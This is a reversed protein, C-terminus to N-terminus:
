QEIHGVRASDCRHCRKLLGRSELLEMKGDERKTKVQLMVWVLDQLSGEFVEVEEQLESLSGAMQEGNVDVQAKASAKDGFVGSRIAVEVAAAATEELMALQEKIHGKRSQM